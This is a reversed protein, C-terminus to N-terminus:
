LVVLNNRHVIEDAFKYGLVAEIASSRLGKIRLLDLSGYNTLGRALDRGSPDALSVADGREFEGEVRIVGSPLLSRGHETVARCAGADLVIRGRPKISFAIWQKRGDLVRPAPQFLTGVDEGRLVEDLIGPSRGDAVVTPIGSRAAKRAAEVKTAMGGVSFVGATSGAAKETGEDINMVIPIRQAGESRGPDRDHLGNTNTLLVLLDAEVLTSVLAALNDNDGVRIEETSVTDNENIVPVIGRQLLLQLTCRANLFRRRDALDDHTLLVQAVKRLRRSFARRYGEILLGQGVAAAAQKDQVSLSGRALGILARGTAIAGSSVLVMELGQGMQRAVVAALRPLFAAKPRGEPALISSGVKVVVRRVGRVATKRM